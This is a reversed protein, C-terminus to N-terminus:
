NEGSGRRERGRRKKSIAQPSGSITTGVRRSLEYRPRLPKLPTEGVTGPIARNPSHKFEGKGAGRWIRKAAKAFNNSVVKVSQRDRQNRRCKRIKRKAESKKGCTPKKKKIDM